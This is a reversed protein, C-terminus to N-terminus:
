PTLEIDKAVGDMECRMTRGTEECVCMMGRDTGRAACGAILLSAAITLALIM